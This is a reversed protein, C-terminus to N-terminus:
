RNDDPRYEDWHDGHARHWDDDHGDRWYRHGHDYYYGAVCSIQTLVGIFLILWGTLVLFLGKKKFM